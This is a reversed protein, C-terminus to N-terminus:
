KYLKQKLKLIKSEMQSIYEKSYEASHFGQCPTDVFSKVGSIREMTAASEAILIAAKDINSEM